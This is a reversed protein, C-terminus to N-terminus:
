TCDLKGQCISDFIKLMIQWHRERHDEKDIASQLQQKSNVEICVIDNRGKQPKMKLAVKTNGPSMFVTKPPYKDDWAGAAAEASGLPNIQQRRVVDKNKIDAPLLGPVVELMKPNNWVGLVKGDKVDYNDAFEASGFGQGPQKRYAKGTDKCVKVEYELSPKTTSSSTPSSSSSSETEESTEDGDGPVKDAGKDPVKDADKDPVEEAGAGLVKKAGKDDAGAGPVKEAGKDAGKDPVKKAGKKEAGAGSGKAAGKDPVTEAGDPVKKEAGPREEASGSEARLPIMNKFLGAFSKKIPGICLSGGSHM